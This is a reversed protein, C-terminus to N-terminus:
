AAVEELAWRMDALAVRLKELGLRDWHCVCSRTVGLEDGISQFTREFLHHQIVAYREDDTLEFLALILAAGRGASIAHDIRVHVAQAM